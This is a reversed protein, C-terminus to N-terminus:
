VSPRDSAGGLPARRLATYQAGEPSLVSQYLILEGVQFRGLEWEELPSVCAALSHDGYHNRSRALTLHPVFPRTEPSYGFPVLAQELDGKLAALAGVEGSLGGWLVKPRKASGFAGGGTGELTIPPHRAAVRVVVEELDPVVPEDIEGLFALTLHMGEPRVWKSDPSLGRLREVERRIGARIEDDPDVAVFLRM